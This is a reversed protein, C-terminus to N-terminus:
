LNMIFQAYIKSTPRVFAGRTKLKCTLIDIRLSSNALEHKPTDGNFVISLAHSFARNSRDPYIFQLYRGKFSSICFYIFNSMRYVSFPNSLRQREQKLANNRLLKWPLHPSNILFVTIYQRQYYWWMMLPDFWPCFILPLLFVRM